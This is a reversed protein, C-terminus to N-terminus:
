DDITATLGLIPNEGSLNHLQRLRELQSLSARMVAAAALGGSRHLEVVADDALSELAETGLTFLGDIAHPRGDARQLNCRIPRILRLAAFRDVRAQAEAIDGVLRQLQVAAERLSESPQGDPAFVPLGDDSLMAEDIALGCVGQPDLRFPLLRAAVPMYTAQWTGARWCLNRPEALSLLAILNFRGTEAEKALVIPVDASAAALESLGLRVFRLPSLDAPLRLRARGHRSPDIPRIATM